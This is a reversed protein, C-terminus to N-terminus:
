KSLLKSLQFVNKARSSICQKITEDVTNLKEKLGPIDKIWTSFVQNVRVRINEKCSTYFNYPFWQQQNIHKLIKDKNAEIYDIVHHRLAPNFAPYQFRYSIEDTPVQGSLLFDYYRNVIKPSSFYGMATLINAKLNSKTTKLYAKEFLLYEAESKNAAIVDLVASSISPDLSSQESLIDMYNNEAFNIASRNGLRGGALSLLSAKMSSEAITEKGSNHWKIIKLRENLQTNLYRSYKVQLAEPIFDTYSFDIDRIIDSAVKNNLTLDSLLSLKVSLIDAYQRKSIKTLQENNNLWALKEDDDLRSINNKIFNEDEQPLLYRYYGVAKADPFIAKVGKPLSIEMVHENLFVHKTIVTHNTLFKLMLPVQWLMTKKDQDNAGFPQQSILLRENNVKLSILPFGPQDLFSSFFEALDKKSAVEIHKVFDQLTANKNKYELIYTIVAQRFIDEGVYHELMNLIANGKSYAIGGMSDADAKSKVSRRIPLQTNVNDDSLSSTQPLDLEASLEPFENIVIKHGLWEAFSENLWVDNWWRMTVLNGFWMHSIEHAILKLTYKQQSISPTEDLLIFEDKFYVLGVNEMAAGSYHPVAVMDLKKYPYKMSFFSEVEKFIKGIHKIAYKTQAQKGKVVYLKSPVSMNPIEISDFNGVSFALVDSYTPPTPEFVFTDWDGHTSLKIQPTNSIVNYGKPVSIKFQFPIKFNPQDFSPFVSRALMSQFQTFLYTEDSQTVKFLGDGTDTYTGEFSLSLKHQGKPIIHNALLSTIDYENTGVVALKKKSNEDSVTASTILLNKSYLKITDSQKTINLDITTTGSFKGLSPDLTLEIFQFSPVIDDSLKFEEATVSMTLFCSLLLSYVNFFGFKIM